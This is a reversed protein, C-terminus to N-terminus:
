RPTKIRMTQVGAPADVEVTDGARRGIVAAGIPSETSIKGAEADSEATDVIQYTHEGGREDALVVSSGVVVTESARVAAEDIITARALTQELQLIRGELFYKHEKAAEVAPVANEDQDLETERAQAILEAMERRRVTRLHELEQEMEDHAAQTLPVEEHQMTM